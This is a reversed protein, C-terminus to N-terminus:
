ELSSVLCPFVTKLHSNDNHDTHRIDSEFYKHAALKQVNACEAGIAKWEACEGVARTHKKIIPRLSQIYCWLVYKLRKTKFMDINQAKKYQCFEACWVSPIKGCACEGCM